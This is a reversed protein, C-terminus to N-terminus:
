KAGGKTVAWQLVPMKQKLVRKNGLPEITGIQIQTLAGGFKEHRAFLAVQGEVTVANAVLQGGPKLQDWCHSFIAENGVDGGHFVADPAARGKLTEPLDGACIDLDFVGHRVMNQGIMAIRTDEREFAIARGARSARLWEIAVSGCGAGVDWLLRAPGPMLKALTVARVERKTLQGDHIFADDPLGPVPAYIVADAGAVCEIALTNFDGFDHTAHDRALCRVTKEDAGGMNELVSLVSEDFGRLCLIQAAEHVTEGNSTLALIKQGPQIERELQAVERGHLSILVVHQLAWGLRAGALSFASSTPLIVMEDISFHRLLTAGIGFHMPDGTALLVTQTGALKKVQEIMAALPSQWPVLNQGASDLGDLFRVPGIVNRAQAILSKEGVRLGDIGTEGVGIITLWQSM